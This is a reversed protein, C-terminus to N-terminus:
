FLGKQKNNHAYRKDLRERLDKNERYYCLIVNYLIDPMNDPHDTSSILAQKLYKDKLAISYLKDKFIDSAKM